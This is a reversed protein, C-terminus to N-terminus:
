KAELRSLVEGAAMRAATFKGPDGMLSTSMRGGANPIQVLELVRDLAQQAEQNGAKAHKQLGMLIEYDDVGERAAVLRISAVPEPQGAGSGPYTLFGDGNPYRVWYYEKGENSQSIFKHWGAQWPDYTWWNVGWFEYGEIDYKLALWPLIREIALLPTDTCMQGDTTFIFRDGAERREEIKGQPFTGQPGIGWMTLHGELGKIYGWTSSYIPVDAAVSKAIDALRNLGDITPKSSEAPEDSLYYEFKKRWGKETIHDIFLKYAERWAKEYEPSTPDVGLFKGLTYAWGGAYFLWPTYVRNCHLEDLLVPMLEDFKRADMTVHGSEYKFDPFPEAYSPSVNYRALMRWWAKRTDDAGLGKIMASGDVRMDYMAVCHKEEPQTFTWVTLAVPVQVTKGGASVEVPGQYKGPKADVPVHVDLWISECVGAKLAVKGDRVTVLPDPWWGAWGDGGRNRALMRHYTPEKTSDYGVNFDIPVRRNHYVAPAELKAGGPGALAGASVKLEADRPSFVAIQFAEYQNRAAGIAVERKMQLPPLDEGFVKVQSNVAWAALEAPPKRAELEGAMAMSAETLVVNDHWITGHCNVTLHIELISADPPATAMVSTQAWDHDGGYSPSTGFFANTALSGDAKLWHGHIRAEGDVGKTKLYGSLFYTVMPKVPAKERWGVWGVEKMEAPANLELCWDGDVGGRVRKATWLAQARVEGELGSVWGEPTVGQGKEMSGNIALNAMQQAAVPKVPAPAASAYLWLLKESRGPMSTAASIQEDLKGTFALPSNPREPDIIQLGPKADFGLIKALRNRLHRTDFSVTRAATAESDFNRVRLPARWAWAEGAPWPAEAGIVKLERKEAEGVRGEVTVAKGSLQELKADDFWAVGTGWLVTGCTFTQGGAPVEFEITVLRWDYTGEFGEVKNVIQPQVGNVHVYWGATGKVGQAKVWGTFRYKSGVVVPLGTQNYQVWAKEAGEDVECKACYDGSHAGGKVRSMRHQGDASGGTWGTPGDDGSEFGLNVLQGGTLWDPPLWAKANGAYIFVTPNEDTKAEAPLTLVDGAALNGARKPAGDRGAIDFLLEAGAAEVVRVSAVPRGILAATADAASLTVRVPSGDLAAGTTNQIDIPVRVPWYGGGDYSLSQHWATAGSGMTCSTLLVATALVWAGKM